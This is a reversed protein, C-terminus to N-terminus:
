SKESLGDVAAGFSDESIMESEFTSTTLSKTFDSYDSSEDFRPKTKIERKIM